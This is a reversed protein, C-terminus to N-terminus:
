LTYYSYTDIRKLRLIEKEAEDKTRFKGVCITKGEQSVRYVCWGYYQEM